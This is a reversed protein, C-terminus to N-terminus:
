ALKILGNVGAFVFCWFSEQFTMRIRGPRSDAQHEDLTVDLPVSPRLAWIVSLPVVITRTWSSMEHLNFYFWRPLLILEPPVAPSRRWTWLGFISLYLKTYSNCARLGGARLIARRADAMRPSGPDDGALKLCLYAKVSVSPATPGDPYIACGGGQQQRGRLRRRAHAARRFGTGDSAAYALGATGSRDVNWPM